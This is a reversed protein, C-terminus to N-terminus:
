FSKMAAEMRKKSDPYPEGTDPNFQYEYFRADWGVAIGGMAPYISLFEMLSIHHKYGYDEAIEGCSKEKTAVTMVVKDKYFDVMEPSGLPSHCVM